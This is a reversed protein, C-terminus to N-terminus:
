LEELPLLQSKVKLILTRLLTQLVEQRVQYEICKINRM